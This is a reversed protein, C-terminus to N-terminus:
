GITNTAFWPFYEITLEVWTNKEAARESSPETCIWKFEKDRMGPM